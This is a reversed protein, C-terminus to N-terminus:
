QDLDFDISPVIVEFYSTLICQHFTRVDRTIMFPPQGSMNLIQNSLTWHSVPMELVTYPLRYSAWCSVWEKFAERNILPVPDKMEPILSIIKQSCLEFESHSPNDRGINAQLIVLSNKIVDNEAKQGLRPTGAKRCGKVSSPVVLKLGKALMDLNTSEPMSKLSSAM